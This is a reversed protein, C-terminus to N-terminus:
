FTLMTGCLRDISLLHKFGHMSASSKKHPPLDTGENNGRLLQYLDSVVLIPARNIENVITDGPAVGESLRTFFCTAQDSYIRPPAEQEPQPGDTTGAQEENSENRQGEDQENEM